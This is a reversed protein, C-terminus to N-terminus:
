KKGRAHVTVNCYLRVGRITAVIRTKGPRRSVVRGNTVTAVATNESYWRVGSSVEEVWLEEWDYQEMYLNTQNLGVVMVNIMGVKGSSTRITVTASGPKRGTVRGLSNVTAVRTNDCSFKVHDTTNNPTISYALMTSTGKVLIMDKQSINVGTAPIAKSVYVLCAERKKGNDKATAYIKCNGVSLATVNGNSDIAAIEPDSSSWKVVKFDANSPSVKAKMKRTEGVLMKLTTRNLTIKTVQRVVRIKCTAYEGSGDTAKCKITVTGKKLGKVLGRKDVSAIKVNTSTWLLKQNTAYNSKVTAKLQVTRGIGLAYSSKNLTIKTVPQKVTVMCTATHGGDQSVATIIAVGGRLGSVVGASTVSAVAKNSSSWLVKKNTANAPTFIAKLTFKKGKGITKKSYNLKMSTVKDYVTVYLEVVKGSKTKVYITTKGAKVGTVKGSSNVTAIASNQSRWTFTKETSNKPNPQAVVQYTDGVALKLNYVDLTIGTAAKTVIIQCSASFGNDTTAVVYTKGPGVAVVTGDSNVTAISTNMSKWFIETTASEPEMKYKIKEKKGAELTIESTILSFGTASQLVTLECQAMALYPNYAPRVTILATGARLLTVLGDEDVTAVTTDSSTWVLEKSTADTPTYTAKMKVVEQNLKVTLQTNELKISKIPSVVTVTVSATIFNDTNIASIVAVGPKLGTVVVSKNDSAVSLSVIEDENTIWTIPATGIDPTFTALVTLTKDVELDVRDYNLKIDTVTSVVRVKCTAYRIYGNSTIQTLKVTVDKKDPTVALGKILGYQDVSVCSTNDSTWVFTGDSAGTTERLQLSAGVAITVHTRDLQIGDAVHIKITYKNGSPITGDLLQSVDSEKGTQIEVTITADGIDFATGSANDPVYDVVTEGEDLTTKFMSLFKERTVNFAQAIDFSDGKDLYLTKDSFEGYIRLNITYGLQMKESYIDIGSNKFRKYIGKPFFKITYEGAKGVTRIMRNPTSPQLDILDSKMGLSDAITTTGEDGGATEDRVGIVWDIKDRLSGGNKAYITNTILRDMDTESHIKISRELTEGPKPEQEKGTVIPLVYVTITDKLIETSGVPVYAATITTTGAGVAKVVGNEVTVVDENDAKWTCNPDSSEGFNLKLSTTERTNDMILCDREDGAIITEFGDSMNEMIAFQVSIQCTLTITHENGEDDEYVVDVVMTANGPKLAEITAVPRNAGSIIRVIQDGAAVMWNASKLKNASLVLAQQKQRMVYTSGTIIMEKKDTVKIDVGTESSALSVGQFHPIFALLAMFFLIGFMMKHVHYTRKKKM